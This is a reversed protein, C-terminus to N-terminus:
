AIGFVKSSSELAESKSIGQQTYIHTDYTQTCLQKGQWITPSFGIWCTSSHKHTSFELIIM